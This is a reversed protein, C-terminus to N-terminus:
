VTKQGLRARLNIEPVAALAQSIPCNKKAGEAIELFKAEDIGPVDAETELDIRSVKFGGSASDLHVTAKTVIREPAFGAKALASATAMSFCGAHAAAILEEPNTGVDSGFRSAYWYAGEFTGSGLKVRGLGTKLDGNWHAEANRQPM